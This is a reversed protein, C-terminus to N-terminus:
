KYEEIMNNCENVLREISFSGGRSVFYEPTIITDGYLVRDKLEITFERAKDLIKTSLLSCPKEIDNLVLQDVHTLKPASSFLLMYPPLKYKSTLLSILRLRVYNNLLKCAIREAEIGVLLVEGRLVSDQNKDMHKYYSLLKHVFYLGSDVHTRVIDINALNNCDNDLEVKYEKLVDLVTKM